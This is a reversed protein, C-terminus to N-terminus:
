RFASIVRAVRELAAPDALDPLRVMVESAGSEALERFRGVHDEVTGANVSAAYSAPSRRRPRRSEVLE